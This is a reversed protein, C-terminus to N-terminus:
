GNSAGRKRRILLLGTGAIGMLALAAPEPTTTIIFHTDASYFATAEAGPYTATDPNVMHVFVVDARYLQGPQFTNAPITLGTASSSVGGTQGPLGPSAFLTTNYNPPNDINLHIYDGPAANSMASWNITIPASPNVSQLATWNTIYPANPYSDGTLTLSFNKTGDNVTNVTLAYTGDPYATDLASQSSYGGLGQLDSSQGAALPSLLINSSDPATLSVGSVSLSPSTSLGDILFGTGYPLKTSISGTASSPVPIGTGTQVYIRDKGVGAFTFDTASVPSANAAIACFATAALISAEFRKM